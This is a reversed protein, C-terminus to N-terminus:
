DRSKIVKAPVGAVVNNKEVSKTVVAGAGVISGSSIVTNGLITSKAGLWVNDAIAIPRAEVKQDKISQNIENYGHNVSMLTVGHAISVDSGIDIGGYAEIYTMPHISVNDGISLNEINFLYVDPFISVNDGVSKALNKVLCYRKILGLYGTKKRALVLFRYQIKKPFISYLFSIFNIVFKYKKFKDRGRKM